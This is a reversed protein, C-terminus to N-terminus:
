YTRYVDYPQWELLSGQRDVKRVPFLKPQCVEGEICAQTSDPEPQPCLTDAVTNGNTDKCTLTRTQTGNTCVGRESAYRAYGDCTQSTPPEAGCNSDAVTAGTSSVCINDRTQIGAGYSQMMCVPQSACTAVTLASCTQENTLSPIFTQCSLTAQCTGWTGTRSYTPGAPCWAM